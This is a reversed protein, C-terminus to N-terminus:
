VICSYVPSMTLHEYLLFNFVKYYWHCQNVEIMSIVCTMYICYEIVERLMCLGDILKDIGCNYM